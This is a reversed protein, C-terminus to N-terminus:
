RPPPEGTMEFSKLLRDFLSQNWADSPAWLKFTAFYSDTAFYLFRTKTPPGMRSEVNLTYSRGSVPISAVSARSSDVIRTGRSEQVRQHLRQRAWQYNGASGTQEGAPPLQLDLQLGGPLRAEGSSKPTMAMQVLYYNRRLRTSQRQVRWAQPRHITFIKEPDTFTTLRLNDERDSRQDTESESSTNEYGAALTMVCVRDYRPHTACGVGIRRLNKRFLNKRHGRNPVGDDIILQFTMERGTRNGSAINEAIRGRWSGYRSLRDDIQSGDSGAHSIRGTKRLDDAHDQAAKSMGRSPRLPERSEVSRLYRIAENLASVGEQTRLRPRNPRNRILGDYHARWEALQKAVTDPQTRARNAAKVMTWERVSLYSASDPVVPPRNTKVAFSEVVQAFRVPPSTTTKPHWYQLTILAYRTSAYLARMEAEPLHATYVRGRVDGSPTKVSMQSSDVLTGHKGISNQFSPRIWQDKGGTTDREAGEPALRISVFLGRKLSRDEGKEPYDPTMAAEVAYWGQQNWGAKHKTEWDAPHLVRFIGEPDEYPTLDAPVTL